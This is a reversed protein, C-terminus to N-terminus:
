DLDYRKKIEELSYTVLTGNRVQEEYRAVALLVEENADLYAKLAEKMYYSKPRHTQAALANLRQEMQVDLRVGTM